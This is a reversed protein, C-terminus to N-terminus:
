QFSLYYYYFNSHNEISNLGGGPEFLHLHKIKSKSWSGHIIKHSVSGIILFALFTMFYNWYGGRLEIQMLTYHARERGVGRGELKACILETSKTTTRGVFLGVLTFVFVEEPSTFIFIDHCEDRDWGSGFYTWLSVKHIIFRPVHWLFLILCMNGMLIKIGVDKTVSRIFHMNAVGLITPGELHIEMYIFLTPTLMLLIIASRCYQYRVSDLFEYNFMCPFLTM